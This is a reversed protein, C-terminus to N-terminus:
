FQKKSKDREQKKNVKLIPLQDYSYFQNYASRKEKSKRKTVKTSANNSNLSLSYNSRSNRSTM